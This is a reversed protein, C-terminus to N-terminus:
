CFVMMVVVVCYCHRLARGQPVRRHVVGSISAIRDPSTFHGSARFQLQRLGVADEAEAEKANGKATGIFSVAAGSAALRAQLLAAVRLPLFSPVTRQVHVPPM